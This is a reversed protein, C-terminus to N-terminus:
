SLNGALEELEKGKAYRVKARYKSLQELLNDLKLSLSSCAIRYDGEHKICGRSIMWGEWDLIRYTKGDSLKKPKYFPQLEKELARLEPYTLQQYNIM